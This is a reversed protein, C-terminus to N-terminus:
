SALQVEDADLSDEQFKRAVGTQRKSNGAEHENENQKRSGLRQM